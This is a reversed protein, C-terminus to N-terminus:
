EKTNIIFRILATLGVYAPDRVPQLTRCRSCIDILTFSNKRLSCDRTARAFTGDWKEHEDVRRM